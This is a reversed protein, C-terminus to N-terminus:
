YYGGALHTAIAGTCTFCALIVLWSLPSLRDQIGEHEIRAAEREALEDIWDNPKYYYEEKPDRLRVLPPRTHQTTRM